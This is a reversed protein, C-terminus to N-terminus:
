FKDMLLVMSPKHFTGIEESNKNVAIIETEHCADM